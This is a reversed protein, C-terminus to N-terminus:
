DTITRPHYGIGRALDAAIRAAELGLKLFPYPIGLLKLNRIQFAFNRGTMRFLIRRFILSEVIRLDKPISTTEAYYDRIKKLVVYAELIQSKSIHTRFWPASILFIAQDSILNQDFYASYLEKWAMLVGSHAFANRTNRTVQGDHQRYFVLQRNVFAIKQPYQEMALVWDSFSDLPDLCYKNKYFESDMFVTGDAGYPGFLLLLKSFENVAIEGSLSPINSRKASFKKLRALCILANTSLLEDLQRRLRDPSMIDDGALLAVYPENVFKKSLETVAPLGIGGSHFYEKDQLFDPRIQSGDRDDIVLIRPTLGMSSRTSSVAEELEVLKGRFPIIVLVQNM